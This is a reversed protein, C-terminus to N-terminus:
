ILTPSGPKLSPASLKLTGDHVNGTGITLKHRPRSMIQLTASTLQSSAFSILAIELKDIMAAVNRVAVTPSTQSVAVGIAVAAVKKGGGDSRERAAIANKEERDFSDETTREKSPPRL